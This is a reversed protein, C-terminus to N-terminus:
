HVFISAAQEVVVEDLQGRQVPHVVDGGLKGDVRGDGLRQFGANLFRAAEQLLDVHGGDGLM